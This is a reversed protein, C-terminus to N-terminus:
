QEADALSLSQMQVLRNKERGIKMAYVFFHKPGSPHRIM